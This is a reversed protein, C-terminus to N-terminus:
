QYASGSRSRSIFNFFFDNCPFHLSMCFPLFTLLSCRGGHQTTCIWISGTNRMHTTHVMFNCEALETTGPPPLMRKFMRRKPFYKIRVLSCCYRRDKTRHKTWSPFSRFWVSHNLLFCAHFGTAILRFM